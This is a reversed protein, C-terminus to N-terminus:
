EDLNVTYRIVKGSLKNKFCPIHCFFQQTFQETETKEYNSIVILTAVKKEIAKACFCCEYGSNKM